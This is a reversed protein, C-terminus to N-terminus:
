AISQMAPDISTLIERILHRQVFIGLARLGGSVYGVCVWMASVYGLQQSLM